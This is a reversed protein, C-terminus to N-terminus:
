QVVDTSFYVDTIKGNPIVRNVATVLDTHLKAFGDPTKLDNVTYKKLSTIIADQIVPLMDAIETKSKTNAAQLSVTYQILGDALNSTNQPLDVRLSKLESTTLPKPTKSGSNSKLYLYGGIALAILVASGGIISIM